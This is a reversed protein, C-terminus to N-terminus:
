VLHRDLARFAIRLLEAPHIAYRRAPRLLGHRATHLARDDPPMAPPARHRPAPVRREDIHVVKTPAGVAASMAHLVQDRQTPAMVASGVHTPQHDAPAPRRPQDELV